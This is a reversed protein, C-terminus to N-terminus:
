RRQLMATARKTGFHNRLEQSKWARINNLEARLRATTEAGKPARRMESLADARRSQEALLVVLLANEEPATLKLKTALAEARLRVRDQDTLPLRQKTTGAEVETRQPSARRAGAPRSLVNASAAAAPAEQSRLRAPEPQSAGGTGATQAVVPAAEPLAPSELLWDGNLLVASTTCILAMASFVGVRLTSKM